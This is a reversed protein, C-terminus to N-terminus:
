TKWAGSFWFCLFCKELTVATTFPALNEEAPPETPM